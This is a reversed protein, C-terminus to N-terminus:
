RIRCTLCGSRTEDNSFPIDVYDPVLRDSYGSNQVASPAEATDRTYDPGSKIDDASTAAHVFPAEVKREEPLGTMREACEPNLGILAFLRYVLVAIAGHGSGVLRFGRSGM